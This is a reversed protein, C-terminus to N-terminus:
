MFCSYQYKKGMTHHAMKAVAVAYACQVYPLPKAINLM